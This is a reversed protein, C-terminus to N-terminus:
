RAKKKTKKHLYMKADVQALVAEPFVFEGESVYLVGHSVSMPYDRVTQAIHADLECLMNQAFEERCGPLIAIFEDGGIRCMLDEERGLTLLTDAVLKLYEDGDTHGFCDNVVKLGDLDMLCVSFEAPKEMLANLNQLCYRRNYLGTLDDRFAMDELEEKKGQDITVDSILHAYAMRGDWEISFSEVYFTKGNRPCFSEYVLTETKHEYARLHEMLECPEGCIHRGTEPNYFLKKASQNVYLVDGTKEEIVVIWDKLGDMIAVLLSMSKEIAKTQNKLKREREELQMIMKNFSDSFEGLFSVRQGYDGNAVQNAQWTLHRLSAQLEKLDSALFNYRGPTAGEFHGRSLNQVLENAESVCQALYSIMEQLDCLGESKTELKETIPKNLIISKIQSLLIEIEQESM